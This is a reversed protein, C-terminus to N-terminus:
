IMSGSSEQKNKLEYKKTKNYTSVPMTAQMRILM